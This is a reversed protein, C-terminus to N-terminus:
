QKDSKMSRIASAARDQMVWEGGSPLAEVTAAAEELAADRVVDKRVITYGADTLAQILYDAREGASMGYNAYTELLDAVIVDRASM